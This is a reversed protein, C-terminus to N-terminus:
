IYKKKIELKINEYLDKIKMVENKFPEQYEKNSILNQNSASELEKGINSFNESLNKIYKNNSIIQKINNSNILICLLGLSMLLLFFDNKIFIFYIISLIFLYKMSGKELDYQNSILFIIFILLIILFINQYM